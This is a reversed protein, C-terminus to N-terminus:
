RRDWVTNCPFNHDGFILSSGEPVKNWAGSKSFKAVALRRRQWCSKKTTLPRAHQRCRNSLWRTTATLQLGRVGNSRNTTSKNYPGVVQKKITSLKKVSMARRATRRRTASSRTLCATRFCIEMVAWKVGLSGWLSRSYANDPRVRVVKFYSHTFTNNHTVTQTKTILKV